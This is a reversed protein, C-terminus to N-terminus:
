STPTLWDPPILHKISGHSGPNHCEFEGSEAAKDWAKKWECGPDHAADAMMKSCNPCMCFTDCLGM